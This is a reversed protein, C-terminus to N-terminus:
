LNSEYKWSIVDGSNLQYNSVGIEAKKNNVYYIWNKSGDNKLGNIEEIFKGMGIYNKERFTLKGEKQLQQMLTYINEGNIITTEIKQNDIELYAKDINTETKPTTNILINNSLNQTNLTKKNNRSNLLFMGLLALLTGIVILLKGITKKSMFSFFEAYASYILDKLKNNLFLSTLFPIDQEPNYFIQYDSKDSM